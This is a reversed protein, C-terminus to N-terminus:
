ARGVAAPAGLVPAGCPLGYEPASACRLLVPHEAIQAAVDSESGPAYRIIWPASLTMLLYFAAVVTAAHAPRPLRPAVPNCPSNAAFATLTEMM